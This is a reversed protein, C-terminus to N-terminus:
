EVVILEVAVNSALWSLWPSWLRDGQERAEIMQRAMREIERLAAPSLAALDGRIRVNPPLNLRVAPARGQGAGARPAEARQEASQKNQAALDPTAAMALAAAVSGLVLPAKKATM